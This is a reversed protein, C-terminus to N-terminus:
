EEFPLPKGTYKSWEEPYCEFDEDRVPGLAALHAQLRRMSIGYRPSIGTPDVHVNSTKGQAIQEKAYPTLSERAGPFDSAAIEERAEVISCPMQDPGRLEDGVEWWPWLMLYAEGWPSVHLEFRGNDGTSLFKGSPSASILWLTSDGNPLRTGDRHQWMQIYLRDPLPGGYVAQRVDAVFWTYGASTVCIPEDESTEDADPKSPPERVMPCESRCPDCFGPPPDSPTLKAVLLISRLETGFDVTSEAARASGACVALALGFAGLTSAIRRM